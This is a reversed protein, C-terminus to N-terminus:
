APLFLAQLDSLFDFGRVTPEVRHLDREILGKALAQELAKHIATLPLGTRASFDQLAFGDRLRLANLMCEFATMGTIRDLMAYAADDEPLQPPFKAFVTNPEVTLHYISIHPPAISLAVGIDQEVQALGQLEFADVVNRGEGPEPLCCPNM